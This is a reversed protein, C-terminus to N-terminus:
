KYAKIKDFLGKEWLKGENGRTAKEALAKFPDLNPRLLIMGKEELFKEAKGLEGASYKNMYEATETMSKDFAKKVDDPLSDWRQQNMYACMASRIYDIYILYKQVEYYGADRAAFVPNEQGEVLGSKLGTYLEKPSLPTPSAGWAKWVAVLTPLPPVRIKLGKLDAPSMVKTKTTTLQRPPRDGAYGLYKFNGSKEVKATMTRFLDSKLFKKLHDQTEFLYPEMFVLTNKPPPEVMFGVSVESPFIDIAGKKILAFHEVFSGLQGAGFIKIEVRGNTNAAVREALKRTMMDPITNLPVVHGLKLTIEAAMCIAPMSVIFLTLVILGTFRRIGKAKM